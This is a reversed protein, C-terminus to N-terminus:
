TEALGTTAGLLIAMSPDNIPAMTPQSIAPEVRAGSTKKAELDKTPYRKSRLLSRPRQAANRLQRRWDRLITTPLAGRSLEPM